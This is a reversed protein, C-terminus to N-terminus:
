FISFLFRNVPRKCKLSNKVQIQNIVDLMVNITSVFVMPSCLCIQGSALTFFIGYIKSNMQISKNRHAISMSCLLEQKFCVNEGFSDIEEIRVYKKLAM